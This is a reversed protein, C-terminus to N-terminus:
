EGFKNDEVYFVYDENDNQSQNSPDGITQSASINNAQGEMKTRSKRRRLVSAKKAVQLNKIV